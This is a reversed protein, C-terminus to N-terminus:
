SRWLALAKRTMELEEALERRREVTEHATEGQLRVCLQSLRNEEKQLYTFLLPHRRSLLVPGFRDCLADFGKEQLGTEEAKELGPTRNEVLAKLGDQERRMVARIVVYLKGRDWVLEEAEIAFDSERLFSRVGTVDSQPQLIWERASCAKRYDDALIQRMLVGGMGALVICDAEGPELAALGDSLRTVIRDQLGVGAIHEAAIALPGPRVDMAIASRVRGSLLLHIPLYAHDCGVDCICGGSSVFDAVCALRPSLGHM